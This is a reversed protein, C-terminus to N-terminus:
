GDQSVSAQKSSPRSMVIRDVFKSFAPPPLPKTFIDALQKETPIQQFQVQKGVSTEDQLFRLRTEYHKATRHSKQGTAMLRAASNDEYVVTPQEVAHEFGFEKLLLRTHIVEKVCDTAAIIEAEATSLACVKQMRSGWAIPAGNLVLVFGSTSRRNYSQAYDSDAYSELPTGYSDSPHSGREYFVPVNADTAKDPRSYVLGKDATHYLYTVVRKLANVHQQGPTAAHRALANIAFAIDPRTVMSFYLVSGLVSRFSLGNICTDVEVTPKDQKPLQDASMPTAKPNSDTLACAEALKRIAAEQSLMVWGEDRNRTIRMGVLWSADGTENENIPFRDSLAGMVKKQLEDSNSCMLVDDVYVSMYMKAKTGGCESNVACTDDELMFICSDSALRKFGLTDELTSSFLKYWELPANKLGYVSKTLKLYLPEKTGDPATRYRTYGEPPYAWVPHAEPIDAELFAQTVDAQYMNLNEAAAVSCMTRMAEYSCTPAFVDNYHVGPKSRQGQIAWRAKAKQVKGDAGVKFRFVWRGPMVDSQRFRPDAKAESAPVWEWAPRDNLGNFEKDCAPKWCQEWLPNKKADSYMNPTGYSLADDPISATTALFTNYISENAFAVEKAKDGVWPDIVDEPWWTAM